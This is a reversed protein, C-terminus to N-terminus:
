RTLFVVIQNLIFNIESKSLSKPGVTNDPFTHANMLEIVKDIKCIVDKNKISIFYHYEKHHHLMTDPSYPYCKGALGGVRKCVIDFPEGFKVYDFGCEKVPPPIIRETGDDLRRWIQFVCPVDYSKRNVEFADKPLDGTYVNHFCLPFAKSMSPKVFSRPLIFAIIDSFTAAHKIFARALSSQRGFPPNGYCIIKKDDKVLEAMQEPRWTLFDAQLIDDRKPDIDIGISNSPDIIQPLLFSGNGAAPEVWFYDQQATNPCVNKIIEICSHAVSAKTYYQDKENKRHKGTDQTM